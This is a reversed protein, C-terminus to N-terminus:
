APGSCNVRHLMVRVWHLRGCEPWGLWRRRAWRQYGRGLWSRWNGGTGSSRIYGVGVLRTSHGLQGGRPRYGVSCWRGCWELSLKNRSGPVLYWWRGFRLGLIQQMVEAALGNWPLFDVNQSWNDWLGDCFLLPWLPLGHLPSGLLLTLISDLVGRSPFQLNEKLPLPIHFNRLIIAICHLLKGSWQLLTSESM